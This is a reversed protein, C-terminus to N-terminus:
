ALMADRVAPKRQIDGDFALIVRRGNLAVDQWDALATKGAATNTGRWGWVGLLAVCCLGRAAACDAKKSGETIWLPITPDALMPGAGPPVDIGNRQGTPTEYKTPKGDRCRPDDPRFQYGWTTGRIDLLPVLLGPVRRGAPTIGIDALRSKDSKSTLSEYGRLAAFEPTIGSHALMERHQDSLM